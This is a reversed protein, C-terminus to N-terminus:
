QVLWGDAYIGTHAADFVVRPNESPIPEGERVLMKFPVERLAVEVIRYRGIDDVRHIVVPVGNSDFSIFEPRVGVEICQADGPAACDLEKVPHGAVMV